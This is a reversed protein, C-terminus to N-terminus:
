LETERKKSKDLKEQMNELSKEGRSIENKLNIKDM